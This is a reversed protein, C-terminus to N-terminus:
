PTFHVKPADGWLQELGYFLRTDEQFVHVVLSGFDLLVWLAADVGEKHLAPSGEKEMTEEIHDVITKVRVTSPASMVVFFECINSRHRMDM